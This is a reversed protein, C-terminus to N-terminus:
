ALVLLLTKVFPPGVRRHTPLLHLRRCMRGQSNCSYPPCLCASCLEIVIVDPLHQLWELPMYGIGRSIIVEKRFWVPLLM